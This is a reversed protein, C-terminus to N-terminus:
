INTKLVRTHAFLGAALAHLRGGAGPAHLRVVIGGVIRRERPLNHERPVYNKESRVGGSSPGSLYRNIIRKQTGTCRHSTRQLRGIIGGATGRERSCTISEQPDRGRGGSCTYTGTTSSKQAACRICLLRNWRINGAIPVAIILTSLVDNPIMSHYYSTSFLKKKATKYDM